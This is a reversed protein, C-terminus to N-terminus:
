AGAGVRFAGLCTPRHRRDLSAALEAAYESRAEGNIRKQHSKCWIVLADIDISVRKIEIGKQRLDRELNIANRQWTDYTDDLIHADEAILRLKRWQTADYWAVAVIMPGAQTRARVRRKAM